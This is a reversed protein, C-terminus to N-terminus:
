SCKPQTPATPAVLEARTLARPIQKQEVLIEGWTKISTDDITIGYAPLTERVMQRYQGDNLEPVPVHKKLIGVVAELNSPNSYWCYAQEQARVFRRVLESNQAITNDTAWWAQYALNKLKPPGEDKIFNVAVTAEGTAEAISPLPWLSMYADVSKNKLAARASAPLGVAIYNVSDAPMGAGAVLQQTLFHTSIGLGIVGLNAGTLDKMAKPYGASKNPLPKDARVILALPIKVAAGMIAKIPLGRVVAMSLNDYSNNAFQISGSALAATMAAGTPIPVLAAEIGNAKFFGQDQAVFAPFSLLSGPYFGVTAPLSQAQANQGFILAGATVCFVLSRRVHPSAFLRM